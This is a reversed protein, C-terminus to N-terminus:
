RMKYVISKIKRIENKKAKSQAELGKIEKQVARHAANIGDFKAKVAEWDRNVSRKDSNYKKLRGKHESIAENLKEVRDEVFGWIQSKKMANIEDWNIPDLGTEGAGEPDEVTEALASPDTEPERVRGGIAAYAVLSVLFCLRHAVFM